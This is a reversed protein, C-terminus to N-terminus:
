TDTPMDAHWIGEQSHARGSRALTQLRRFVTARSMGLKQALETARTPSRVLAQWVPDPPTTSTVSEFISDSNQISTSTIDKGTLAYWASSELIPRTACLNIHDRRARVSVYFGKALHPGSNWEDHLLYQGTQLGVSDFGSRRLQGWLTRSAHPDLALGVTSKLQGQLEKSGLDDKSGNQALLILRGGTKRIRKAIRGVLALEQAGESGRSRAEAVFDPYEDIILVLWPTAPSPPISDPATDSAAKAYGLRQERDEIVAMVALLLEVVSDYDDALPRAFMPEWVRLTAGAALDGAVIICDDCASLWILLSELWMSKGSGTMGCILTHQFTYPADDGDAYIGMVFQNDSERLSVTGPAPM